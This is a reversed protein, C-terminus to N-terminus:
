SNVNTAFKLQNSEIRNLKKTEESDEIPVFESKTGFGGTHKIIEAEVRASNFLTQGLLAIVRAEEPTIEKNKLKQLSDFLERRVDKITLDSM